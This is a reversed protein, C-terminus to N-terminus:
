YAKSLMVMNMFVDSFVNTCKAKASVSYVTNDDSVGVM